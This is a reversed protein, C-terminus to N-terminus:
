AYSRGLDMDGARGATFTCHAVNAPDVGGVVGWTLPRKWLEREREERAAHCRASLVVSCSGGELALPNGVMQGNGLVATPARRFGLGVVIMALVALLSLLVLLATSSTSIATISSPPSSSTTPTLNISVAFISQSLVFSLAAFLAVLFWSCPRPLTLYLSTTQSGDPSSTVRLSRPEDLAFLVFEHSLHYTTMLSNTTLYLAALLVQPLAAIISAATAPISIPLTYVAYPSAIGFPSLHRTPDNFIGLALFTTTVAVLAAWFFIFVSWRSFSPTRFWYHERPVWFKAGRLGWRQQQVDSRTMLCSGGTTPDPYQLFSSLADGLSILPSFSRRVLVVIMIIVTILNLLVVVGLLTGKLNVNCTQSATSPQALCFEVTRMDFPSSATDDNLGSLRNSSGASATQVLSNITSDTTTVLLVSKFDSQYAASLHTFCESTTLNALANRNALDQLSLIDLRSLRGENNSTANSFPASKLFSQTVFLLNYDM